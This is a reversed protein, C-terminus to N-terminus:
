FNVVGDRGFAHENVLRSWNNLRFTHGNGHLVCTEGGRFAIRGESGVRTHAYADATHAITNSVLHACYDLAVTERHKHWFGYMARQDTGARQGTAHLTANISQFLPVLTRADGAVFGGNLFRPAPCREGAKLTALTSKGGKCATPDWGSAVADEGLREPCMSLAWAPPPPEAVLNEFSCLEAGFVVSAGSAARVEDLRDRLARAPADGPRGCGAWISDAGDILAVPLLLPRAAVAKLFALYAETRDIYFEHSSAAKHRALGPPAVNTVSCGAAMTSATINHGGCLQKELISVVPQRHQVSYTAIVLGSPGAHHIAREAVQRAHEPLPPPHPAPAGTCACRRQRGLIGGSCATTAGNGCQFIGACGGAVLVSSNNDCGFTDRSVDSQVVDIKVGLPWCVSPHSTRRVLRASCYSLTGHARDLLQGYITIPPSTHVM